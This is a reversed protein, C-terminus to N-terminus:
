LDHEIRKLFDDLLQKTDITYVEFGLKLLIKRVLKQKPKLVKGGSKLEVFRVKGPPMLIMRDPFGTFSVPWFKLALGGLKKVEDRLKNEIWKESIKKPTENAWGERVHTRMQAGLPANQTNQSELRELKM